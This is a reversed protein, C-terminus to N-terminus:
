MAGASTPSAAPINPQPVAGTVAGPPAFPGPAALAALAALAAPLRCWSSSTYGSCVRRPSAWCSIPATRRLPVLRTSVLVPRSIASSAATRQCM